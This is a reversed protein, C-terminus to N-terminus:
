NQETAILGSQQTIKEEYKRIKTQLQNATIPIGDQTKHQSHFLCTM